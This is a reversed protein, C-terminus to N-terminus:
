TRSPGSCFPLVSSALRLACLSLRFNSCAFLASSSAIRAAFAPPAAAGETLSLRGNTLPAPPPLPLPKLGESMEAAAIALLRDGSPLRELEGMGCDHPDDGPAFPCAAAAEGEGTNTLEDGPRLPLLTPDGGASPRDASGGGGGRLAANSDIRPRLESMLPPLASAVAAMATGGGVGVRPSMEADSSAAAPFRERGDGGGEGEGGARAVGLAEAAATGGTGADRGCIACIAFGTDDLGGGGTGDERGPPAAGATDDSSADRTAANLPPDPEAAAGAGMETGTWARGGAAVRAPCRQCRLCSQTAAVVAAVVPRVNVGDM